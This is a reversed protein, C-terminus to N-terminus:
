PDQLVHLRVLDDVIELIRKKAGEVCDKAGKLTVQDSKQGSRPFSVSVGGYDEAIQRLVEGRRVVFHRHHKPDVSIHIEEVKDQWAVYCTVSPGSDHFTTEVLFLCMRPSFKEPCGDGCPFNACLSVFRSIRVLDVILEELEKKAKEVSDKKGIISILEQEQDDHSPFIVRAGTSERIKRVNAGGRGILFKHYEPKARVEASHGSEKQM